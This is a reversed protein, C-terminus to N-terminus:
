QRIKVELLIFSLGLMERPSKSFQCQVTNESADAMDLIIDGMSMQEIMKKAKRSIAFKGGLVFSIICAILGCVIVIILNM